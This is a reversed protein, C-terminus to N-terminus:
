DCVCVRAEREERLNQTAAAACSYGGSCTIAQSVEIVSLHMRILKQFGNSSSCPGAGGGCHLQLRWLEIDDTM